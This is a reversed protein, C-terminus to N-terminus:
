LSFGDDVILNQGTMFQSQDSLLFLLAGVLDNPSLMGKSACHGNYAALFGAPQDALIGGPSLSHVRLGAGKFYQAFYRTLQVVASKIAAYEVPMTMPTGAYIEFRPVITGYISSLNVINGGGHDRFFLGFQQAVLFYGGLHQGVNDCFDEYTVDELKRGYNRNRPYANNVVADIRGHKKKLGDILAGVSQPNIIDLSAAEARGLRSKNMEAAARTAAEVDRDAVIAVGGIKVIATCFQRGLVGAGGTVVVVKDTLLHSGRELM